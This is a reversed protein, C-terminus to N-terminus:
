LGDPAPGKRGRAQPCGGTRGLEDVRRRGGGVLGERQLKSASTAAGRAPRAGGDRPLCCHGWPLSSAVEPCRPM